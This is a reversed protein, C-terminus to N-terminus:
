LFLVDFQIEGWSYLASFCVGFEQWVEVGSDSKHIGHEVKPGHGTGHFAEAEPGMVVGESM